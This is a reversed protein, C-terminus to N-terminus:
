DMELLVRRTLRAQEDLQNNLEAVHTEVARRLERIDSKLEIKSEIIANRLRDQAPTLGRVYELLPTFCLFDALSRIVELEASTLEQPLSQTRIFHLAWNFAIPDADVFYRGEDFTKWPIDSDVIKSLIWDTEVLVEKRLTYAKGSVSLRVLPDDDNAREQKNM